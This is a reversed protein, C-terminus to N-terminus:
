KIVVVMKFFTYPFYSGPHMSGDFLIGNLVLESLILLCLWSGNRLATDAQWYQHPLKKITPFESYPLPQCQICRMNIWGELIEGDEINGSAHICIWTQEVKLSLFSMQPRPHAGDDYSWQQTEKKNGTRTRQTLEKNEPAINHSNKQTADLFCSQVHPM